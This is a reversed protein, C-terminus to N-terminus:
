HPIITHGNGDVLMPTPVAAPADEVMEMPEIIAMGMNDLIELVKRLSCHAPSTKDFGGDFTVSLATTGDELDAIVFCAQKISM